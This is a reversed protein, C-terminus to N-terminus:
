GGGEQDEEKSGKRNTKLEIHGTQNRDGKKHSGRKKEARAKVRISVVM